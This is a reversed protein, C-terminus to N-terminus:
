IKKSMYEGRLVQVVNNHSESLARMLGTVGFDDEENVDAGNDIAAQVGEFNGGSCLRWFKRDTDGM